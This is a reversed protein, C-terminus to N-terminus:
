RKLRITRRIVTRNGSADRATVTVKAGLKKHRALARKIAARAKKTLTLTLKGRKGAAITKKSGKLKYVKALKPVSVSGAATVTATEDPTIFVFLPKRISQAKLRAVRLRPKTKDPAPLIVAPPFYEFAGIDCAGLRGVGRQDLPPCAAPDGANIAPSTAALGMTDTPGGNNALPLLQPDAARQDTPTNFNCTDTGSINHGGSTPSPGMDAFHCDEGTGSHNGAVITNKFSYTHPSTNELLIGSGLNGTNNAVTVNTLTANGQLFLGGGGTQPAGSAENGSVTVNTLTVPVDTGTTLGGGALNAHNGAILSDVITLTSDNNAQVGAGGESTARNGVLAVRTLTLQASTARIGGGESTVVGGTLTLDSLSVAAAGANADVVRSSGNGRLITDRAGGGFITLADTINLTGLPLDYIGAGLHIVDAGPNGTGNATEIAARLTCGSTSECAGNDPAPDAADATSTVNIDAARAPAAFAFLLAAAVALTRTRPRAM